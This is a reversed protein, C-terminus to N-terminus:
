VLGLLQLQALVVPGYILILTWRLAPICPHPAWPDGHALADDMM